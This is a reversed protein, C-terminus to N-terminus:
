SRLPIRLGDEAVRVEGSFRTRCAAVLDEQDCEPYFHTLLVSRCRAREAIEGALTPTLHGPVPADDPFSCELVFLDAERGIEVLGECVDSDGSYALVEGSRLEIRYGLSADSHLTPWAKVTGGPLEVPGEMTRIELPYTRPTVWAGYVGQLAAYFAAIGRPGWVTLGDYKGHYRPNTLAFVLSVLDLTHDPHFHTYFARRVREIPIGARALTGLSGSGSDLLLDLGDGALFYGSPGRRASPLATGSGLVVLEAM